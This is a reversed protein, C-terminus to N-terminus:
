IELKHPKKDGMSVEGGSYNKKKPETKGYFFFRFMLM